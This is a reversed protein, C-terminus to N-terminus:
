PLKSTLNKEIQETDALLLNQGKSIGCANIAEESTYVTLNNVSIEKIDFFVTFSLVLTVGILFIVILIYLLLYSGCRKRKDRRANRKRTKQSNKRKRLQEEPSLSKNYNVSRTPSSRSENIAGM